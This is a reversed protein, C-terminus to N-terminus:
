NFLVKNEIESWFPLENDKESLCIDNSEVPWKIAFLTM